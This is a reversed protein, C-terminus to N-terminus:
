VSTRISQIDAEARNILVALANRVRASPIATDPSNSTVHKTSKNFCAM